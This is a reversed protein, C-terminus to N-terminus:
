SGTTADAYDAFRPAWDELAVHLGNAVYSIARYWGCLLLLDLVQQETFSGALRDWRDDAIRAEDHLADVVEILAREREDTWCADVSTGFTLSRVQAPTLRAREAFYAVHVGWEYECGCRACTRDIVIERQRLDLSLERSLEYSGWARMAETMPRNRVFTRFLGIAPVGPPMMSGLLEDVRDDYPPVVPEIRPAPQQQHQQNRFM